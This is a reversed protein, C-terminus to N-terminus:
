VDRGAELRSTALSHSPDYSPSSSLAALPLSLAVSSVCHFVSPPVVMTIGVHHADISHYLPTFSPTLHDSPFSYHALAEDLRPPTITVCSFEFHSYRHLCSTRPSLSASLALFVQNAMALLVATFLDLKM